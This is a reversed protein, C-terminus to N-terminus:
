RSFINVESGLLSFVRECATDLPYPLLTRETIVTRATAEAAWLVCCPVRSDIPYILYKEEDDAYDIIDAIVNPSLKQFLKIKDGEYQRIAVLIDAPHIFQILKNIEDITGNLLFETLGKGNLGNAM